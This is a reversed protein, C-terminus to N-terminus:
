SKAGHTPGHADDPKLSTAQHFAGVTAGLIEAVSKHRDLPGPAERFLARLGSELPDYGHTADSAQEPNISDSLSRDDTM